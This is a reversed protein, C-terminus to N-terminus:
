CCGTPQEATPSDTTQGYNRFKDIVAGIEKKTLIFPKGIQLARWYQAALTEVEIALWFAKKLSPGVVIMGHNALLCASRDKLAKLVHNALEQTGYTAYPTCRVDHGGAAAVMYHVAPIDLRLCSLTTAFMSHTHVVAGVEPKTKMIDRHFRWESSPKRTGEHSGDLHMVVLDAPKMEAYPMGSPTIVFGEPVRASINGSTGQNIGRANMEICAAIIERRLKEHKM